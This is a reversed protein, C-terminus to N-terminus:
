APRSLPALLEVVELWFETWAEDYGQCAREHTRRAFHAADWPCARLLLCAMDTPTRVTRGQDGFVGEVGSSRGITRRQPLADEYLRVKEVFM